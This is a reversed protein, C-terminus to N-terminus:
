DRADVLELSALRAVFRGPALDYPVVLRYPGEDAPLPQGDRASAVLVEGAMFRPDIEGGAIVATYGERGRAVVLKSLFDERLSLDLKPGADEILDFLRVGGYRARVVATSGHAGTTETDVEHREFRAMGAADLRGPREVLGDLTVVGGDTVTAAPASAVTRVQVDVVGLVYRGGLDDGPVVLRLGAQVAEGDQEFALLVAKDSYPALCEGLAVAVVMGDEATVAFYSDAIRTEPTLLGRARAYDALLPGRFRRESVGRPNRLRTTVEIPEFDRLEALLSATREDM